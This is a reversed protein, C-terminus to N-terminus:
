VSHMGTIFGRCKGNLSFDNIHMTLVVVVTLDLSLFKDVYLVVSSGILIDSSPMILFSGALRSPMM